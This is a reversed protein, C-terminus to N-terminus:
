SVKDCNNNLEQSQEVSLTSPLKDKDQMESTSTNSSSLPPTCTVILPSPLSDQQEDNNVPSPKHASLPRRLTRSSRKRTFENSFSLSADIGSNLLRSNNKKNNGCVTPQLDSFSTRARQASGEINHMSTTTHEAPICPLPNRVGPVTSQPVHPTIVPIQGNNIDTRCLMNKLPSCPLTQGERKTPYSYYSRPDAMYTHSGPLWTQPHQRRAAYKDDPRQQDKQQLHQNHQMSTNPYSRFYMMPHPYCKSPGNPTLNQGVTHDPVHPISGSQQHHDPNQHSHSQHSLFAMNYPHGYPKQTSGNPTLPYLPRCYISGLSPRRMHSAVPSMQSSQHSANEPTPYGTPTYGPHYAMQPYNQQSYGSPPMTHQQHTLHNYNNYRVHTRSIGRNINPHQHNSVHSSLGLETQSTTEENESMKQCNVNSPLTQFASKTMMTMRDLTPSTSGDPQIILPKCTQEPVPPQVHTTSRMTRLETAPSQPRFSNPDLPYLLPPPPRHYATTDLRANYVPEMTADESTLDITIIGKKLKTQSTDGSQNQSIEQTEPLREETLNLPESEACRRNLFLGAAQHAPKPSLTLSKEQEAKTIQSYPVIHQPFYPNNTHKIESNLNDNDLCPSLVPVNTNFSIHKETLPIRAGTSEMAPHPSDSSKSCRNHEGGTSLDVPENDVDNDIDINDTEIADRGTDNKLVKRYQSKIKLLCTEQAVKRQFLLRREWTKKRALKDLNNVQKKHLHYREELSKLRERYQLVSEIRKTRATIKKKELIKDTSDCTNFLNTDDANDSSVKKDDSQSIVNIVNEQIPKEKHKTISSTDPKPHTTDVESDILYFLM